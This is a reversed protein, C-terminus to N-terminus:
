ATHFPDSPTDDGDQADVKPRTKAADPERLSADWESEDFDDDDDAPECGITREDRRRALEDHVGDDAAGQRREVRAYITAFDDGGIGALHASIELAFDLTVRKTRDKGEATLGRYLTKYPMGLADAANELTGYERLLQRRLENRIADAFDNGM